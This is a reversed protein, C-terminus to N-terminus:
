KILLILLLLLMVIKTKEQSAHHTQCSTGDQNEQRTFSRDSQDNQYGVSHHAGYKHRKCEMLARVLKEAPTKPRQIQDLRWILKADAKWYDTVSKAHFYATTNPWSKIWIM